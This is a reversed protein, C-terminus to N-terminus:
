AKAGSLPLTDLDSAYERSAHVGRQPKTISSEQVTVRKPSCPLYFGSHSKFIRPPMNIDCRGNAVVICLLDLLQLMPKVSATRMRMYNQGDLLVPMGAFHNHM